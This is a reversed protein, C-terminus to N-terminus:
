HTGVMELFAGIRTKLQGVNTVCYERDINIAPISAATLSNVLVPTWIERPRSWAQRLQIVGDINFEKVRAVIREIQKDWDGFRSDTSPTFYGDVLAAMRDRGSPDVDRWVFIRDLDLDTMAVNCGCSEVLDLYESFHLFDSLLLIRPGSVNSVQRKELSPLLAELKTNFQEKPMVRSNLLINMNEGATLPPVEKKRLEYLKRLLQRTKNVLIIADYLRDQKVYASQNHVKGSFGALVDSLRTLEHQYWHATTVSQAFPLHVELSMDPKEWYDLVDGFRRRDDDWDTHILGDLFDMEGLHIAELVHNVHGCYRTGGHLQDAVPTELPTRGTALWPFMGHAIVLEEPLYSDM